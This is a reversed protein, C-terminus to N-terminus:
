CKPMAECSSCIAEWPRVLNSARSFVNCGQPNAYNREAASVIFQSEKQFLFTVSRRFQLPILDLVSELNDQKSGRLMSVFTTRGNGSARSEDDDLAHEVNLTFERGTSCMHCSVQSPALSTLCETIVM